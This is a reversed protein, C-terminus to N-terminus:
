ALEWTNILLGKGRYSQLTAKLQAFSLIKIDAKAVKKAAEVRDANGQDQKDCSGLLAVATLVAALQAALLATRHGPRM